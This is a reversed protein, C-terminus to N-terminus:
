GFSRAPDTIATHCGPLHRLRLLPSFFIPRAPATSKTTHRVTKNGRWKENVAPRFREPSPSFWAISGSSSHGSHSRPSGYRGPKQSEHLREGERGLPRFPSARTRVVGATTFRAPSAGSLPCNRARCRANTTQDGCGPVSAVRISQAAETGKWGSIVFRHDDNDHRDGM